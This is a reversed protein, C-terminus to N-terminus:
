GMAITNTNNGISSECGILNILKLFHFWQAIQKMFRLENSEKAQVNPEEVKVLVPGLFM